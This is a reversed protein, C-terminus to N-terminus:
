HTVKEAVAVSIVPQECERCTFAIIGDKYRADVGFGPHCVAGIFLGEQDHPTTCDPHGCGKAVFADLDAKFLM